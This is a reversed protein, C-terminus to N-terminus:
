RARHYEADVALYEQGDPSVNHMVMRFSDAGATEIVTRWGWDPGPPASYSGRVDVSESSAPGESKMPKDSMHWSDTWDATFVQRPKDYGLLLSGEQPTGEFDWTYDIRTLGGEVPTFTASSESVRVPGSPEVILRYSGQWRGTLRGFRALIM